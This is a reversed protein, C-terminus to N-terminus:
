PGKTVTGKRNTRFRRTAALTSQGVELGLTLDPNRGRLASLDLHTAVLRFVVPGGGRRV